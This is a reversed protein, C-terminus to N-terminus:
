RGFFDAVTEIEHVVPFPPLSKAVRRGYNTSTLRSDLIAVVGRDTVKRLLRGVAQTLVLTMLPIMLQGFDVERGARRNMLNKKAKYLIDSPVPFPMKDIIVVRCAEGAFDVGTFFSKMAFLVSHTDVAFIQAIEKNTGSLGQMLCTYGAMELVPSLAAYADQMATRSTYLLLAGGGSAKILDLSTTRAYSLWEERTDKRPDPKDASPLFMLGQTSYDFPSGVDMTRPARDSLGLERKIFDFSEGVSLTASLLVTNTQSWLHRELFPGVEVPSYKVVTITETKGKGGPIKIEAPEVWRIIEESSILDFLTSIMSVLSSVIRQQRTLEDDRVGAKVQTDAVAQEIAQLAVFLGVYIESRSDIEGVKLEVQDTSNDRIGDLHEWIADIGALAEGIAPSAAAKHFEMFRQAKAILNTLGRKRIEDSLTSAAIEPLEHAEDVVFADSAGLISVLGDTLDLIKFHTMLMAVNTVVIDSQQAKEKAAEAFCGRMEAVACQKRGPCEQSSMSLLYKKDEGIVTALHEFDGSHGPTQLEKMLDALQPLTDSTQEAMKANCVYSSKGKLLAWSFKVGLHDTLFPLDNNAYQEQLAKTATAVIVRQKRTEGQLTTRALISPILAAISKGTGCGAQALLTQPGDQSFLSEVERALMQQQPRAQYGPLHAALNAEAQAFTRIEAPVLTTTDTM